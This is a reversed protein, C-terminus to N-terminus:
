RRARRTALAAVLAALGILWAPSFAGLLAQLRLYLADLQPGWQQPLVTIVMTEGAPSISAGGTADHLTLRATRAGSGEPLDLFLLLIAKDGDDDDGWSVTEEGVSGDPREVRVGVSVAGGRGGSRRLWVFPADNEKVALISSVFGLTGPDGVSGPHVTVVFNDLGHAGPTGLTRLFYGFRLAGGGAGFDPHAGGGDDFDEASLGLRADNQWAFSTVFRESTRYVVGGQEVLFGDLLGAESLLRRDASFDITAVGGNEALSYESGPRVLRHITMGPGLQATRRYAGPNGEELEQTTIHEATGGSAWSSPAFDDDATSWDAAAAAESTFAQALARASRPGELTVASIRPVRRVPGAFAIPGAPVDIASVPALTEADLVSVGGTEQFHAVYLRKGHGGLTLALPNQGGSAAERVLGGTRTDIVQVRGDDFGAVYLRRGHADLALGRPRRAVPITSLVSRTATDIVSVSDDFFSAVYLRQSEPHLALGAPFRGVPVTAVLADSEADIVSVTGAGWSAVYAFGGGAVVDLPGDGVDLSALVEASAPDVVTVTDAGTNAVYVRRERDAVAVGTAGAGTTVRRVTGADLDVIALAGADALAVFLQRGFRDVACGAPLGGLPVSGAVTQSSEEIVALSESAPTSVFTYREAHALAPTLLTLATVALSRTVHDTGHSPASRGRYARSEFTSAKM